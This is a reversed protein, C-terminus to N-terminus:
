YEEIKILEEGIWKKTDSVFEDALKQNDFEQEINFGLEECKAEIILRKEKATKVISAIDEIDDDKLTLIYVTKYHGLETKVWKFGYDGLKTVNM